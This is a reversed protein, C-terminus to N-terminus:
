SFIEMDIFNKYKLLKTNLIFYFSGYSRVAAENNDSGTKVLYHVCRKPLNQRRVADFIRAM